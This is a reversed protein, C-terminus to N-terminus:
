PATEQRRQLEQECLARVTQASRYLPHSAHTDTMSKSADDITKTLDDNEAKKIFELAGRAQDIADPLEPNLGVGSPTWPMVFVYCPDCVVTGQEHDTADDGPVYTGDGSQDPAVEADWEQGDECSASIKARCHILPESM